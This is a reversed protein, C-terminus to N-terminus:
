PTGRMTLNIWGTRMKRAGVEEQAGEWVAFAIQAGATPSLGAPVPRAIVVSWGTETRQGRGASDSSPAPGLTGPGEAILDQVPKDRPGAMHNGLALAPSYRAAMERQAGPDEELPKAQFPYHDVAANPYLDQISDGRGDVTAQWAANWFTIEVPRGKEGMQPAPVTPEIKAPLQVACGDPFLAPGPTDDKSEDTWELRFAVQKGDTIARVRVDATTPQLQRPEVLDQPLLKAILEPAANWAADTPDTPVSTASALEVATPPPPPAAQRCGLVSLAALLIAPTTQRHPHSM